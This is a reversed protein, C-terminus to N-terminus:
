PNPAQFGPVGDVDAYLANTVGMAMVGGEGLNGDLLDALTANSGGNLNQPFVPFMPRCIGDSGQVLVVFWTDQALGRYPVTLSVEQREAGPVDAVPVTAVDFDGDGQTAPDCDGEFFDQSSGAAARFLFPADPDLPETAANAYVRVTDFEAWTPAQIRIELDVDGNSSAVQTSGGLGLHAEAGSGDRAVLRTQVYIGQGGVARGADVAGAVEAPQVAAPADTPSATWTRAGATRLNAFTHTDTDSIATTPLGKNLHNFWVGIREDVFESQAGRSSGNWLELAPFHQFLNGAAPDLRRALRAQADLGDTIPGAVSTDIRLPVFHGNIHNVQATTSPVSSPQTRALELIEAPTRTFSGYSPFDMGPPAARGFDTSGGSPLEPNVTFPYANFHGYDFTTIEEGVTSTLFAQFGMSQIRPGLDTLVDHDTMILNEVGEGAFQRIRDRDSVRSDPSAIGHVHFDSSIFGPTDLVRAIEADLQLTDGSGVTIPTSYLSYETGRTVVLEYEGPEVEFDAQGAADTYASRVVGLPPEDNPDELIALTSGGVGPFSPGTRRQVPSPDFGVVTIRAPVPQGQADVVSVQVRGGPGLDIDPATTAGGSVVQVPHEPSTPGGGEYLAGPRGATVLLDGPPVKARYNPCAGATTRLAAVVRRGDNNGQTRLISVRSEARPEGGVTVCGELVGSPADKVAALMEAGLSGSGDGVGFYRTFSLSGGQPVLFPPPTGLLTAAVNANHLVVSVGSQNFFSAQGDPLSPVKVPTYAYEVESAEGFGLYHLLDVDGLLPEGLGSFPTAMVDLEGAGNVWDGVALPLDEPDAGDPQNNFIETEMEIWAVEPELRYTTCGEVELDRDDALEPFPLGFDTILASPNVFDLLDDPGCTRIAASTGDSGDNVVEITQANIVSEVNVMPQIEFFNDPSPLGVLKADIVNGGFQGISYLDRKGVDQIVFRAKRNELIWDGPRAHALPGSAFLGPPEIRRVQAKPPVYLFRHQDQEAGARVVLQNSDQLPFGPSVSAEWHSGAPTVVLPEGNLRVDATPDFDLGAPVQVRVTFDFTGVQAEAPELIALGDGEGSEPWPCGLAGFALLLSLVGVLGRSAHATARTAKGDSRESAGARSGQRRQRRMERAVM